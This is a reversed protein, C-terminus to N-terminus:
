TVNKKRDLVELHQVLYQVADQQGTLRGLTQLDINEKPLRNPYKEILLEIVQTLSTKNVAM